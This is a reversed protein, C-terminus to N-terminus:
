LDVRQRLNPTILERKKMVKEETYEKCKKGEHREIWTLLM